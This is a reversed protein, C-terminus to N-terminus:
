ADFPTPGSSLLTTARLTFPLDCRTKKGKNELGTQGQRANRCNRSAEFLLMATVIHACNASLRSPKGTGYASLQRDENLPQAVPLKQDLRTDRILRDVTGWEIPRRTRSRRRRILHIRLARMMRDVSAQPDAGTIADVVSLKLTSNAILEAGVTSEHVDQDAFSRGSRSLQADFRDASSRDRQAPLGREVTM